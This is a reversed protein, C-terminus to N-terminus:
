RHGINRIPQITHVVMVRILNLQYAMRNSTQQQPRKQLTARQSTISVDAGEPLFLDLTPILRWRHVFNNSM